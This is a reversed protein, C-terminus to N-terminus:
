RQARGESFLPHGLADCANLLKQLEGEALHELPPNVPVKDGAYESYLLTGDKAVEISYFQGDGHESEFGLCPVMKAVHLIHAVAVERSNM